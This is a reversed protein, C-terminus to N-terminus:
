SGTRKAARPTGNRGRATEKMTAHVNGGALPGASDARGDGAAGGRLLEIFRRAAASLRARRHIIGLPRTFRCNLLPVAVLSRARVERRLTPEPLIAIGAGIAVAQKINEISDFELAVEVVVGHERLLRDVGRRVALNRDFHVFKQGELLEVPVALRQALPHKPSCALVMEEEKWPVATLKPSKHPYSVLGLDATGDLVREYVRDPHHYEIHVNVGPLEATFRQVYQGMDSLGVSYIAAVEVTGSAESRANKISAELEAYQELLAKCGEYYRQGLATLQLPRTSRDVLRVAMHEELHSIMQSVASQTRGNAAAAQSFSRLRAVDCFIQLSELQM